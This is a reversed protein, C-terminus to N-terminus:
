FYCNVPWPILLPKMVSHRHASSLQEPMWFKPPITFPKIQEMKVNDIIWIGIFHRWKGTNWFSFVLHDGHHPTSRHLHARSSTQAQLIQVLSTALMISFTAPWSPLSTPVDDWDWCQSLTGQQIKYPFQTAACVCLKDTWARGHHRSKAM